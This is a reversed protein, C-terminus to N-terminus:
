LGALEAPHASARSFGGKACDGAPCPPLRKKFPACGAPLRPTMDVASVKPASGSGGEFQLHELKEDKEGIEHCGQIEINSVINRLFNILKLM